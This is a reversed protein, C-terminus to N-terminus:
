KPAPVFNEAVDRYAKHQRYLELLAQNKQLLDPEGNKQALAVAKQAVAMADDFRGAEAQAAALTGVMMTKKYDTLECARGALQVARAGNRINSDPCTALTWALNNLAEASDPDIRLATEFHFVAEVTRGMQSLTQGLTLEAPLNNPNVRLIASYQDAAEAWRGQERLLHALNGRALTDLPNMAAAIRYQVMAANTLGGRELGIGLSYQAASNDTTVAIAHQFLSVSNEWFEVQRRAAIACAALLIVASPALLFKRAPMKGAWESVLWVLGAVPGILPIYTYRDAMAQQGVQVLGIVPLMAVLYWFWGAALYPRRSIQLVCLASIALLLLAALWVEMADSSKPYPYVVALKAPWVLKALYSVYSVIANGLRDGLGLRDFSVVAAFNKQIEYTVACGAASLAFFPWKELFLRNCTSPQPAPIRFRTVRWKDGAVRGLPWVDLLLLLFPLSVLMAKSMLGLAFFVLALWYFPRLHCTVRSSDSPAETRTVRWKGSTVARAYCLLTLLFFFGCLVDKRESIWAVSEVRLPHWAFIAAVIASRWVTNTMQNLVLFLLAANVAHFFLNVLHEVGPNKGFFQHDLVFSLSTVPHWNAALVGSFTWLLSHWNFGSEVEPNDTFVEDDFYVVGYHRAPWYIALTVGALLLCIFFNRRM